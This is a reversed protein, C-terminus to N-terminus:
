RDRTPISVIKIPIEGYLADNEIEHSGLIEPLTEVSVVLPMASLPGVPECVGYVIEVIVPIRIDDEEVDSRIVDRSSPCDRVNDLVDFRDEILSFSVIRYHRHQHGADNGPQVLLIRQGCSEVVLNEIKDIDFLNLSVIDLEDIVICGEFRIRVPFCFEHGIGSM